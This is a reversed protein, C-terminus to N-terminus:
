QKVIENVNVYLKEPIPLEKLVSSQLRIFNNSARQCNAKLWEKVYNTGLYEVIDNLKSPDKPIIYYVSHRPIIVGEQDVWFHPKATIDKCLIKPRLIDRLPPNEHFAYWLKRTSCTRKELSKRNQPISLYKILPEINKLNMLKGNLAYPVLMVSSFHLSKEQSNLEKGSITPYAFQILSPDVLEKRIVFVSDAGTAVGCSIRLCIDHLKWPSSSRELGNMAPLWSSGDQSLIAKKQKGDRLHIDTEKYNVVNDITTITPYTVFDRFVSEDLFEIEVVQKTTLIKRLPAATKIYTFKEPTIFVLRGKKKLSKIAKEFFLLYLDFRGKATKFLQKYLAKEESSLRTIPVYPPNCIIYDYLDDKTLLFDRQEININPFQLYKERAEPIHRPDLEVGTIEPLSVNKKKCWRIIGDIFDGPGCGPDLVTANSLPIREAFLKEVMHDVIWTPTKAYGKMTSWKGM